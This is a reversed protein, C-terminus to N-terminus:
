VLLPSGDVGFESVLKFVQLLRQAHVLGGRLLLEGANVAQELGLRVARQLLQACLVGHVFLVLPCDHAARAFLNGGLAALAVDFHFADVQVRKKRADM